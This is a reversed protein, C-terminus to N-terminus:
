NLYLYAALLLGILSIIIGVIAFSKKSSKLGKIGFFMSLINGLLLPFSVTGIIGFFLSRYANIDPLDSKKYSSRRIFFLDKFAAGISVGFSIILIATLDKIYKHILFELLLGVLFIIPFNKLFIMLREKKSYLEM